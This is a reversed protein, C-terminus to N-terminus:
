TFNLCRFHAFINFDYQKRGTLRQSIKFRYDLCPNTAALNKLEAKIDGVQKPTLEQCNVIVAVAVAMILFAISKM